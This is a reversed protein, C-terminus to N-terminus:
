MCICNRCPPLVEYIMWLATDYARPTQLEPPGQRREWGVLAILQARLGSCGDRGYWHANACFSPGGTDKVAKADKLLRDLRPELAALAKFERRHQATIKM